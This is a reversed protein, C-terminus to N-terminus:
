HQIGNISGCRKNFTIGLSPMGCLVGACCEAVITAGHVPKDTSITSQHVEVAVPVNTTSNMGTATDVSLASVQTTTSRSQSLSHSLSNLKTTARKALPTGSGPRGARKLSISNIFHNLLQLKNFRERMEDLKAEEKFLLLFHKNM